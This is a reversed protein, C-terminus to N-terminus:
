KATLKGVQEISSAPAVNAEDISCGHRESAYVSLVRESMLLNFYITSINM